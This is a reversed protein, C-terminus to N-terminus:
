IFIIWGIMIEMMKTKRGCTKKKKLAILNPHGFSIVKGFSYLFSVIWGTKKIIYDVLWNKKKKLKYLGGVLKKKKLNIYDM